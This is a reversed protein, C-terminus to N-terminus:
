PPISPHLSGRVLQPERDSEQDVGHYAPIPDHFLLPKDNSTASLPSDFAYLKQLRQDVLYLMTQMKSIEFGFCDLEPHTEAICYLYISFFIGSYSREAGENSLPGVIVHNKKM